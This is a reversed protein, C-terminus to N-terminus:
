KYVTPIEGCSCITTGVGVWNRNLYPHTTGLADLPSRERGMRVIEVNEEPSLAHALTMGGYSCYDQAKNFTVKSASYM